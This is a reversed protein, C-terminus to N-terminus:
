HDEPIGHVCCSWLNGRCRCYRTVLVKLRIHTKTIRIGYYTLADMTQTLQEGLRAPRRALMYGAHTMTLGNGCTKSAYVVADKFAQKVHELSNQFAGQKFCVWKDTM